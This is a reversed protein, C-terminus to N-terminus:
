TQITAVDYFDELRVLTLNLADQDYLPEAIDILYQTGNEDIAYKVADANPDSYWGSANWCRVVCTFDRNAGLAAYRRRVGTTMLSALFQTVYVLKPAPMFGPTAIDQLKYLKIIGCDRM